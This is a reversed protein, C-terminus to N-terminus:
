GSISELEAEATKILDKITKGFSEPINNIDTVSFIEDFNLCHRHTRPSIRGYICLMFKCYPFISKILEVKQNYALLEHTTPQKVKVEIIFFPMGVHKTNQASDKELKIRLIEETKFTIVAGKYPIKRNFLPKYFTIDQKFCWIELITEKKEKVYIHKYPVPVEKDVEYASKIKKCYTFLKERVDEETM